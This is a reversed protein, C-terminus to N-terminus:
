WRDTDHIQTFKSNERSNRKGESRDDRAENVVLDMRGHIDTLLYPAYILGNNNRIWAFLKAGM